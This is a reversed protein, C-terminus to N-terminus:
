PEQAPTDVHEPLAPPLPLAEEAPSDATKSEGAPAESNRAEQVAALLTEPAQENMLILNANVDRTSEDGGGGSQYSARIARSPVLQTAQLLALNALNGPNAQNQVLFNSDAGPPPAFL